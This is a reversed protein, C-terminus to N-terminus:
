EGYQSGVITASPITGDATTFLARLGAVTTVGTTSPIVGLTNAVRIGRACRHMEYKQDQHIGTSSANIATNEVALALASATANANVVTNTIAGIQVVTNITELAIRDPTLQDNHLAM